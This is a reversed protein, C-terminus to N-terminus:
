LLPHTHLFQLIDDMMQYVTEHEGGPPFESVPQSNTLWLRHIQHIESLTEQVARTMESSPIAAISVEMRM